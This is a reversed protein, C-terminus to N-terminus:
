RLIEESFSYDYEMESIKFENKENCYVECYDIPAAYVHLTMCKDKSNNKILHYGMQDTMYSIEGEKLRLKEKLELDNNEDATFRMEMVEGNVQYVWCDQGGHGHIPTVAKKDWCLLIIEYAASRALCNRTYGGEKWTAYDKLDEANLHLQDILNKRESKPTNDLADILDEIKTIENM